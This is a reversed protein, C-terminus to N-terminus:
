IAHGGFLQRAIYRAVEEDDIILISGPSETVLAPAAESSASRETHRRDAPREENGFAFPLTLHFTSGRGLASEVVLNGGILTALKRSLPLGLGTGRVKRQVPSQIQGFEHFIREHDEPAIGIGTQFRFFLRAGKM